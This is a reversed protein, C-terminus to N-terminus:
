AGPRAARSNRAPTTRTRGPPRARGSRRSGGARCGGPCGSWPRTSGSGVSPLHGHGSGGRGEPDQQELGDVLGAGPEQAPVPLHEQGRGQVLRGQRRRHPVHVRHHHAVMPPHAAPDDFRGRAQLDDAPVPGPQVDDVQAGGRLPPDAHHVGGLGVALRHGLMEHGHRQDQGLAQQLRVPGEPRASPVHAVLVEAPLHAALGEAHHAEAPHPPGDGPDAVM